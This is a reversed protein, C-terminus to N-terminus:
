ADAHPVFNRRKGLPTQRLRDVQRVEVMPAVLGSQGLAVRLEEAILDVDLPAAGILAVEAGNPTQVVQHDRVDLHRSLVSRFVHPHVIVDGYRFLDDSRGDIRRLRRYAPRSGAVPDVVVRDDIRYRILPLSRQHLSTVLLHDCLVGPPVPDGHEDVCEILMLDDNLYVGPEGPMQQGLHGVDTTPYGEVPVVGFVSAAEEIAGPAVVDGFVGMHEPQISLEGRRAADTLPGLMSSVVMVSDGQLENLRAVIATLPQDVPVSLTPDNGRLVTIAASPHRHSRAGVWVGRRPLDHGAAMSWRVVSASWRAFEDVHWVFVGPEGTSGGTQFVLYEDWLLSFGEAEVHDLHASASALDLRPDTIVEDWSDMLDRKTMVPLRSLDDPRVASLDVDGLRRAHWASRDRAFALTETLAGRQHDALEAESWELRPLLAFLANMIAESVDSM